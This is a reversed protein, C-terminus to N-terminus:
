RASRFTRSAMVTMGLVLLTYLTIGSWAALQRAAPPVGDAGLALLARSLADYHLFIFHRSWIFLLALVGTVWVGFALLPPRRLLPVIRDAKAILFGAASGVLAVAWVQEEYARGMRDMYFSLMEANM